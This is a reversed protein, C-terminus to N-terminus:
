SRKEQPHAVNRLGRRRPSITEVAEVAEAPSIAAYLATTTPSAHGLLEQTERLDRHVRYIETGFYHRCSHLTHAIGHSHLYTNCLHSIQAPQNPGPRGDRRLFMWGREPIGALVLESWVYESVPVLREVRGKAAIRSVLMTRPRTTDVLDERRLRAIEQARLGAYAALVLWPRIRRPAGAIAEALDDEPIPRPLHRRRGPSRLRASPDRDPLGDKAAMWQYFGAITTLYAAITDDACHSLSLIWDELDKPTAALLGGPIREHLRTLTCGYSTLTAPSPRGLRLFNLYDQVIAPRPKYPPM